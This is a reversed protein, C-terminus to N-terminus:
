IMHFTKLSWIMCLHVLEEVEMCRLNGQKVSTKIIIMRFISTTVMVMLQHNVWAEAEQYVLSCRDEEWEELHEMSHPEWPEVQHHVATVLRHKGQVRWIRVKEAMNETKEWNDRERWNNKRKQHGTMWPKLPKLMEQTLHIESTQANGRDQLM